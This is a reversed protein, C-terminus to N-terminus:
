TSQRPPPVHNDRQIDPPCMITVNITPPPVHNGYAEGAVRDGVDRYAHNFQVCVSTHRARVCVCVCVCWAM